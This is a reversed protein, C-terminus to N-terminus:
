YIRMACKDATAPFDERDEASPKLRITSAKCAADNATAKTFLEGLPDYTHNVSLTWGGLGSQPGRRALQHRRHLTIEQRTGDGTIPIGNGNYGFAGTNQYVGDYVNGIDIIVAQLGTM